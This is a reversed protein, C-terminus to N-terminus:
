SPLSILCSGLFPPFFLRRYLCADCEMHTPVSTGTCMAASDQERDQHGQVRAHGQPCHVCKGAYLVCVCVCVCWSVHGHVKLQNSRCCIARSRGRRCTRVTRSGVQKTESNRAWVVVVDAWTGNGIWRKAGDLVYGGPVQMVCVCVCVCM